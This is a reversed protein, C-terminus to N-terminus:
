LKKIFKAPIGGTMTYSEVDKTVASNPTVISHNSIKVGPYITCNGGIYVNDEIVIPANPRFKINKDKLPLGNMCQMASSHTWLGTSPGAIHVYDGITISDSWDLINNIGIYSEKGINIEGSGFGTIIVGRDIHSNEGVKINELITNSGIIVDNCLEVNDKIIVNDKISVKGNIIIDNSITCNKGIINGRKRLKSNLSFRRIFESIRFKYYGLFM